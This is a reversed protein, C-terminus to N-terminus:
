NRRLVVLDQGDVVGEVIACVEFGADPWHRKIYDPSLVTTGYSREVGVMLSTVRLTDQRRVNEQWDAYEKYLYGEQLLRQRLSQLEDPGLHPFRLRLSVLGETSLFCWGGAKTVRALEKLWSAQDEMNLHSFISVSYIMDFFGPEYPLPPTFKSVCARVQPYNKQIFAISTDDIDCAFYAPAPYDRTFHLLGRAVGCGFDLIRISQDLRVGERRACAAIPLYTRLGGLYYARVTKGGTKRISSNPPVPFDFEGLLRGCGVICNQVQNLGLKLLKKLLGYNKMATLSSM